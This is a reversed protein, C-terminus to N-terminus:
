AKLAAARRYASEVQDALGVGDFCWGALSIGEYQAVLAQVEKKWESYGPAYKPIGPAHRYVKSWLPRTKVKLIRALSEQALSALEDDKFLESEGSIMTKTLFKDEGIRGAFVNSSFITGLIPVREKRPVLFGYGGPSFEKKNWGSYVVTISSYKLEALRKSLEKDFERSIYALDDTGTTFVVREFAGHQKAKSTLQYTGQADKTVRAIKDRVITVGQELLKKEIAETLTILGRKFSYISREHKIDGLEQQWFKKKEASYARLGLKVSASSAIHRYLDPFIGSFELDEAESGFVGRAFPSALYEAASFGLVNRAADFLTITPWLSFKKRMALFVKIKEPFFLLSTTILGGASKPAATLYGEKYIYRKASQKTERVLESELGLDKVLKLFLGSRDLYSDPGPELVAGEYMETRVQGGCPNPEFLTLQLNPNKQRMFWAHCLGSIGGGVVALRQM